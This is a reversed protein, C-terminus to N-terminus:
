QAPAEQGAPVLKMDTTTDTSQDVDTNMISVTMQVKETVHSRTVRGSANDFDFTGRGEQATIKATMKSDPAPELTVKTTLGIREVRGAASQDPGEYSYVKDLVTTGFPSAPGKVRRTWTAGRALDEKPLALSSEVIMNKLGEESFAEAGPQGAGAERLSRAVSEPVKVDRLEGQPTMKFSFQSGVLAKLPGISAAILGEPEKGSKSDYEIAGFMSEIKLRVRDFAQTMDATGQADVSRVTRTMDITLTLTTKVERKEGGLPVTATTVTKQDMVYHLNEGAKLKWRLTVAGAPAGAALVALGLAAWRLASFMLRRM